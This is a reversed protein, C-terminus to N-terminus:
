NENIFINKKTMKEKLHIKKFKEYITPSFFVSKRSNRKGIIEGKLISNFYNSYFEDPNNLNQNTKQINLNITSLLNDKKKNLRSIPEIKVSNRRIKLKKNFDRYSNNIYNIYNINNNINNLINMNKFKVTKQNINKEKRIKDNFHMNFSENITRTQFKNKDNKNKQNENVCFLHNILKSTKSKMIKCNINQNEKKNKKYGISKSSKQKSDITSLFYKKENKYNNSEGLSNIHKIKKLSNKNSINEQIQEKLYKKIKKQLLKNKILKDGGILYLNDYLSNFQFSINNNISLINNNWYLNKKKNKLDSSLLIDKTLIYNNETNKFNFTFNKNSEFNNINSTIVNISLNNIDKDEFSNLLISLKRNKLIRNKNKNAEFNENKTSIIDFDLKKSFLNDGNYLKIEDEGSCLENNIIHEFSSKSEKIEENNDKKEIKNKHINKFISKDNNSNM